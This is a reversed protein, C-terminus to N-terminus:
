SANFMFETGLAVVALFAFLLLMGGLAYLMRGGSFSSNETKHEIYSSMRAIAPNGKFAQAIADGFLILIMFALPGLVVLAVWGVAGSPTVPIILWFLFALVLWGGVFIGTKM